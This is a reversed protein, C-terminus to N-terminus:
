DQEASDLVRLARVRTQPDDDDVRAPGISRRGSIEVQLDQWAGVDCQMVAHQVHNQAVAKQVAIVNCRM